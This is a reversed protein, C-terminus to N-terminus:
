NIPSDHDYPLIYNSKCSGTCDTDIVVLTTFKFGTRPSTYVYLMIHYLTDTFQTQPKRQTSQNEGGIFSVAM